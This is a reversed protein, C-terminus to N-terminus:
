FLKESDKEAVEIKSINKLNPFIIELTDVLQYIKIRNNLSATCMDFFHFLANIFFEKIEFDSRTREILKMKDMVIKAIFLKGSRFDTKRSDKKKKKRNNIIHDMSQSFDILDRIKPIDLKVKPFPYNDYLRQIFRLSSLKYRATLQNQYFQSYTDYFIDPMKYTKLPIDEFLSKGTLCKMLILGLGWVDTKQCVKGLNFYIRPKSYTQPVISILEPPLWVPTGHLRGKLREVEIENIESYSRATGYDTILPVGGYFM